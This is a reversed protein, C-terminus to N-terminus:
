IGLVDITEMQELKDIKRNKVYNAVFDLIDECPVDIRQNTEKNIIFCDGSMDLNYHIRAQKGDFTHM